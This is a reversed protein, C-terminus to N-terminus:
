RSWWTWKRRRQRNRRAVESQSLASRLDGVVRDDDDQALASSAHAQPAIPVSDSPVLTPSTSYILDRPETKAVPEFWRSATSENIKEGQLAPQEGSAPAEAQASRLDSGDLIAQTSPVSGHSIALSLLDALKKLAAVDAPSISSPRPSFVEMVGIVSGRAQVPVAVASRLHLAKAVSPQIRSDSEADECIVVEGTEFCERTFASDPQLRSGVVPADGTSAVCCVGEQDRIAILAGSASMASCMRQVTRVLVASIWQVRDSSIDNEPESAERKLRAEPM